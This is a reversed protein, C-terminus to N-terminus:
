RSGRPASRRSPTRASRWGPSAPWCCSGASGFVLAEAPQLRGDPLPRHRTREMRGDLDRELYQNLALTGAAALATGALTHVLPALELGGLSGLYFGVLTTVLVMVVVRPKTLALYDALRRPTLDSECLGVTPTM